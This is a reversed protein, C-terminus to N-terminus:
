HSSSTIMRNLDDISLWHTNNDSSYRFGEPLVRGGGTSDNKKWFKLEPEIIYYTEYEKTHRAEDDTLLIEHLKEGPRIGIVDIKADPAMARALDTVKMSPIKPVFIEGGNMIPLCNRVFQVGEELTLWFRTMREDTITLRGTKKQEQFLPVVSGRSGVVNGYRVCSFKTHRDGGTYSNGQVFLKEAVMKTSGYLNVPHVAKDTSLAIVRDVNNDIATNIINITGNINTKVAEIPNYECAPVQKLAAAHVVIDVGNMARSLREKDRVDGIFFRIRDDLFMKETEYQLLEGRSYVRISHPNDERLLTALFTRGFSGTGGTILVTKDDFEKM